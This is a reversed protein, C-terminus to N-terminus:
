NIVEELGYGSLLVCCYNNKTVLALLHYNSHGNKTKLWEML